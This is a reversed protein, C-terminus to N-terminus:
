GRGAGLSAALALVREHTEARELIGMHDADEVKFAEVGVRRALRDAHTHPVRPDRTGQIVVTPIAIEAARREPHLHRWPEQTRRRWFPLLLPTLGSGPLNRDRMWGQTVELLDAPASILGLGAAPASADAAVLCCAAGGMSHGVLLIPRDPWRRAAFHTAAAVDDRYHRLTLFPVEPSRGHGRADIALVDAGTGLLAKALPVMVGTNQTWGHVLVAVPTERASSGAEAWWGHLELPGSPVTVEGWSVGLEGPLRVIPQREPRLTMLAIRDLAVAAGSLAAGVLLAPIM